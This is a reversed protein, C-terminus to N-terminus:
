KGALAFKTSFLVQKRLHKKRARHLPNQVGVESEAESRALQDLQEGRGNPAVFHFDEQLVQLKFPHSVGFLMGFCFDM